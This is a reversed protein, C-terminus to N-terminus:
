TSNRLPARYRGTFQGCFAEPNKVLAFFELHANYNHRWDTDRLDGWAAEMDVNPIGTHFAVYIWAQRAQSGLMKHIGENFYHPADTFPNSALAGKGLEYFDMGRLEKIAWLWGDAWAKLQLPEPKGVEVKKQLAVLDEWTM